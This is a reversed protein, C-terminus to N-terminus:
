ISQIRRGAIEQHPVEDGTLLWHRGRLRQALQWEKPVEFVDTPDRQVARESMRVIIDVDCELGGWVARETVTMGILVGKNQVGKAFAQGDVGRIPFEM